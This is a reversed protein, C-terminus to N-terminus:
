SLTEPLGFADLQKTLDFATVDAIFGDEIGLVDLAFARHVHEGPRRIYNAVAPMGNARTIICRFDDYPPTGFGGDIWSQVVRERGAAVFPDPPM